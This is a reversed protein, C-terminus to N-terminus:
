ANPQSFSMNITQSGLNVITNVTYTISINVTYINQQQISTDVNIDIINLLPLYKAVDRKIISTVIPGLEEENFEFLVSYLNTGFHPNMRREGPITNFLMVLNSKMQTLVDYSQDFYGSGGRQIPLLIGFPKALATAM